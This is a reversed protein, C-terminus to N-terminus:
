SAFTVENNSMAPVLNKPHRTRISIKFGGDNPYNYLVIQGRVISIGPTIEGGVSWPKRPLKKGPSNGWSVHSQDWELSFFPNAHFSNVM